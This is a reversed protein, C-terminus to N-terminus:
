KELLKSLKIQVEESDYEGSKIDDEIDQLQKEIKTTLEKKSYSVRLMKVLMLLMQEMEEPTEISGALSEMETFAESFEKTLEGDKNTLNEKEKSM